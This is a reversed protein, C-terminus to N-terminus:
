LYMREAVKHEQMGARQQSKQIESNPPGPLSRGSYLESEGAKVIAGKRFKSKEPGRKRRETEKVANVVFREGDGSPIRRKRSAASNQAKRHNRTPITVTIHLM